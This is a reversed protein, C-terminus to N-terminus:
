SKMERVLMTRGLSIPLVIRRSWPAPSTSILHGSCRTGWMHPCKDCMCGRGKGQLNLSLSEDAPAPRPVLIASDRPLERPYFPFHPAPFVPRTRQGPGREYSAEQWPSNEEWASSPYVLLQGRGRGMMLGDSSGGALTPAAPGGLLGRREWGSPEM